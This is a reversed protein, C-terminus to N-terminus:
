LGAAPVDAAAHWEVAPGVYIGAPPIPHQGAAEAAAYAALSAAAAVGAAAPADTPDCVFLTQPSSAPATQGPALFQPNAPRYTM